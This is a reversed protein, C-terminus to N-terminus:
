FLGRKNNLIGEGEQTLCLKVFFLRRMKGYHTIDYVRGYAMFLEFEVSTSNNQYIKDLIIFWRHHSVTSKDLLHRVWQKRTDEPLYAHNVFLLNEVISSLFDCDVSCNDVFHIIQQMVLDFLQRTEDSSDIHEQLFQLTTTPIWLYGEQRYEIMSNALLIDVDELTADTWIQSIQSFLLGQDPFLSFALWLKKARLPLRQYFYAFLHYPHDVSTIEDTVLQNLLLKIAFPNGGTTRELMTVWEVHPEVKLSQLFIVIEEQNFNRLALYKVTQYLELPMVNVLYVTAGTFSQLLKDIENSSLASIEDIVITTQYMLFYERLRIHHGEYFLQEEVAKLVANISHPRNIWIIRQLGHDIQWRVLEQVFTTKGCGLVGTILFLPSSDKNLIAVAERWADDKGILSVPTVTPLIAYLRRKVFRSRCAWEEQILRQTIQQIAVGRHRQLNRRSIHTQQKFLEVSIDFEVRVFRYYIFALGTLSQSGSAAAEKIFLLHQDFSVKEDFPTKSRSNHLTIYLDKVIETLIHYLAFTRLHESPPLAPNSLFEDVLTLTILEVPPPTRGTGMAILAQEISETSIFSLNGNHM